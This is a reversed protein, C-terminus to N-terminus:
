AHGRALAILRDLIRAGDTRLGDHEYESTLWTRLTPVLAATEESFARDVYADHAYVAAACPVRCARLRDADYLTPWTREALLDAAERFPALERYDEFMWPYVHEGTLLTPDEVFDDPLTRQASWRTAHGDAYGSEHIVAYLPNRGSFPLMAGLDHRFAPSAPDRELLHHLREAGDTGGLLHGLQRFRRATLLDGDPLRVEGADMRELLARVRPRDEPYRRYYRRNRERLVRYTARYVEDPHRGVPPLGGTFYVEQLAEPAAGLYHLACFGGFSQGLLSWRDVDLEARIWEADQVIADARFHALHDAQAQPSMGTLPGIPTSRGTGRQDLLLVRYDQLARELWGPATPSATPRPAEQGPGGQLYLLYPRDHGDPAAVERAFVTLRAGDPDAHDLPVRFELETLVMGPVHRTLAM